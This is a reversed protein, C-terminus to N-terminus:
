ELQKLFGELQTSQEAGLASFRAGATFGGEDRETVWMIEGRANLPDQDPDEIGDATLFLSVGVTQGEAIERDLDFSVGTASLNRTRAQLVGQTTYVEAAVEVVFRQARRLESM